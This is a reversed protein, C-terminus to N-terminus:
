SILFFRITWFWRALKLWVQCLAKKPSTSEFKNLHLAWGKELPHYNCIAFICQLFKYIKM